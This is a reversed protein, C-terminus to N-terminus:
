DDFIAKVFAIVGVAIVVTSVIDWSHANVGNVGDHGGVRFYVDSAFDMLAGVLVMLVSALAKM